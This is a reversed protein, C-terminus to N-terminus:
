QKAIMTQILKEGDKLKRQLTEAEARNHLRGVRVRYRTKGRVPASSIYSEYGKGALQKALSEARERETYSAVQVYWPGQDRGGAVAPRAFNKRGLPEAPTESALSKVIKTKKERAKNGPEASPSNQLETTTSVASPSPNDIVNGEAPKASATQMPPAESVNVPLALKAGDNKEPFWASQEQVLTLELTYRGPKEPAAIAANLAVSEGPKLNRPLPTRLGDFVVTAGNRDLWHYSFNVAYRNKHDPKTPWTVPSLNKVTINASVTEGMTMESSVTHAEFAVQFGSDPLRTAGRDGCAVLLIAAIMFISQKRMM